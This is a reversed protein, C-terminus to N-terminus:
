QLGAIKTVSASTGPLTYMLLAVLSFGTLGVDIWSEGKRINPRTKVGVNGDGMGVKIRHM